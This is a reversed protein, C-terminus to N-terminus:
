WGGHFRGLVAKRELVEHCAQTVLWRERVGDLMLDVRVRVRVRARARIGVRVRIVGIRVRIM